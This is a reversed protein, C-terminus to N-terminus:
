KNDMFAASPTDIVTKLWTRVDDWKYYPFMDTQVPIHVEQENLMFKAIIDGTKSNRFLTMQVNSAMPSIRWDTYVKYLEYPNAEYALSNDLQLLAALPIINGDHGFRLTAGHKNSSVYDDATDLINRVLNKANDVHLGKALPYSSNCAYFNFNFVQWLDFLEQPTFLDFFGLQTDMNQMDVAVWYLGWMLGEPDVNRRVYLSDNFLTQMMREPNTKEAKFKRYDQYWPGDHGSYPGSEPSHYNLYDMARQGSERPIILRPNHEKLGEVFAFMSHACRMVTTSKATIEADDNFIDPYTKYLRSAIGRHQRAGLPSLEGGRGQAEKWVSDLRTLVDKGLPTLAGANDAKHFAEMVWKYDNDSILYRSGHRGYHSVYFPKYGKPVPTDHRETIPYAYYVGGCKEPTSFMEEATTQSLCPVASAAAIVLSLINTKM